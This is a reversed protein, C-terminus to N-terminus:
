VDKKSDISTVNSNDRCKDHDTNEKAGSYGEQNLKLVEGLATTVADMIMCKLCSMTDLYMTMEKGSTNQPHTIPIARQGITRIFIPNKCTDCIREALTNPDIDNVSPKPVKNLGQMFQTTNKKM